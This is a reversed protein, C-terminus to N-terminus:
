RLGADIPNNLAMDVVDHCKRLGDRAVAMANQKWYDRNFLELSLMCHNHNAALATVIRHWPAVGDGPYVRHADTIEERPPNAPYDNVHFCHIAQHGLLKLGVYDSGGKYIHYVDPLLCADPHGSEIAVFVAEGLRSLNESFGWVEVQAVVGIQRGASLLEAYREAAALLSLKQGTNTAGAPPAAIRTGGIQRVLDMDRRAQELGKARRGPDDVIWESFGIASPIELGLDACRKAIDQLSGGSAKHKEIDRIWPEIGDYGSQAALEVQEALSLSQGSVTSTNLCYRFSTRVNQDVAYAEASSATSIAAVGVGAAGALVERRSLSSSGM